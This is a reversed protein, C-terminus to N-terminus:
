RDGDLALREAIIVAIRTSFAANNDDIWGTLEMSLVGLSSTERLELCLDVSAEELPGLVLTTPRVSLCPCSSHFGGIVLTDKGTNRLLISFQHTEGQRLTGLDVLPPSVTVLPLAEVFPFSVSACIWVLSFVLAGHLVFPRNNETRRLPQWVFLAALAALDLGVMARLGIDM